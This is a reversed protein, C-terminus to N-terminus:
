DRSDGKNEDSSGLQGDKTHNTEKLLQAFHFLETM